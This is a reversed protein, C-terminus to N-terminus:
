KLKVNKIQTFNFTGVHYVELITHHLLELIYVTFDESVTAIARGSITSM